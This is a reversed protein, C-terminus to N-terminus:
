DHAPSTAPIVNLQLSNLPSTPHRRNAPNPRINDTPTFPTCTEYRGSCYEVRQIQTELAAKASPCTRIWSAHEGGCNACKIKDMNCKPGATCDGDHSCKHDATSHPGACKGCRAEGTCETARHGWDQCRFCQLPRPVYLSVRCLISNLAISNDIIANAAEKNKFSLLLPGSKTRKRIDMNNLWRMHSVTYPIISDHNQGELMAIADQMRNEDEFIDAPANHVVVAYFRQPIEANPDIDRIWEDHIRARDADDKSKFTLTINGAQSRSTGRLPTMITLGGNSPQAFFKTLLRNCFPTLDSAPLTSVEASREANRMSIFIQKEQLEPSPAKHNSGSQVAGQRAMDAYTPNNQSRAPTGLIASTLQQVAADLHRKTAPTDEAQSSVHQPMEELLACIATLQLAGEKKINYPSTSPLGSFVSRIAASLTKPDFRNEKTIGKGALVILLDGM